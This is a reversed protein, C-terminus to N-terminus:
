TDRRLEPFIRRFTLNIRPGCTRSTKNIGHKWNRQTDGRMLLLSGSPLPLSLSEAERRRHVLRFPRPEGLSVSAIVPRPGLEPEDDAHMGMSDRGDRYYNLLVSNFGYGCVDAVQRRLRQLAKTWPLPEHDIGSYSYRTGPDGYWAVLRPQPHTKGFV